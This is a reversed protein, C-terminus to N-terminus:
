HANSDCSMCDYLCGMHCDGCHFVEKIMDFFFEHGCDALCFECIDPPVSDASSEDAALADYRNHTCISESCDSRAPEEAAEAAAVAEDVVTAVSVAPILHRPLHRKRPRKRRAAVPHVLITMTSLELGAINKLNQVPDTKDLPEATASNMVKGNGKGSGLGRGSDRGRIYM